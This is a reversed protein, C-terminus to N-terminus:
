GELCDGFISANDGGRNEVKPQGNSSGMILWSIFLLLPRKLSISVESESRLSEGNEIGCIASDSDVFKPEGPSSAVTTFFSLWLALSRSRRLLILLKYEERKESRGAESWVTHADKKKKTKKNANTLHVIVDLYSFRYFRGDSQIFIHVSQKFIKLELCQVYKQVFKSLVFSM